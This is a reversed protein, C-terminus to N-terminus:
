GHAVGDGDPSLGRRARRVGGPDGRALATGPLAGPPRRRRPGARLEESTDACRQALTEPTWYSIFRVSLVDRITSADGTGRAVALAEDCLNRRREWDGAFTSSRRSRRWCGRASRATTESRRWPRRWRRWASATWRAPRASSGAPTRWRRRRGAARATAWSARREAAGLLTARFDARGSHCQSRGLGILLECRQPAITATSRPSCIWPAHFWREAEQPALQGLAREGALRAYHLAKPLDDAYAGRILHGALEAVHGGSGSEKALEELAAAIRRHTRRRRGAPLDQRLTHAVLAHAFRYRRATGAPAMVLGAAIARGPPGAGRGRRLGAARALLGLRVGHGDDGATALVDEADPGLRAVRQASRRACAAPCSSRRAAARAAPWDARAASSTARRSSIACCRPSSSRRQRADGRDVDRALELMGPPLEHGALHATLALVDAHSSARAARDREGHEGRGLDVLLDSLLPHGDDIDTSRYTGIVLVGSPAPAHFLYRLLAVTPGDAWHLDDLVLVLPPAPNRRWCRRRRPSCSTAIPTAGGARRRRPAGASSRCSAGSRTPGHRAPARALARRRTSSTTARAGGRVAQYPFASIPTAAGTSCPPATPAPWARLEARWGPRESGRSARSCSSRRGGPARAGGGGAPSESSAARGFLPREAAARLRSRCRPRGTRSAPLAGARRADVPPGGVAYVGGSEAVGRLAQIGRDALAVDSGAVLDRVAGSVLMEGPGALGTMRAAAHVAIGVLSTASCSASAPTCGPACPWGPRETGRHGGGGRVAAGAIPADFSWWRRTGSAHDGATGATAARSRRSRRM